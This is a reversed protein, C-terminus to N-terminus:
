SRNALYAPCDDIGCSNWCFDAYGRSVLRDARNRSIVRTQDALIAGFYKPCVLPNGMETKARDEENLPIVKRNFVVLEDITKMEM